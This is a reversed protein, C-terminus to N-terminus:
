GTEEGGEEERPLDLDDDTAKFDGPLPASFPIEEVDGLVLRFPPHDNAYDVLRGAIVRKLTRTVPNLLYALIWQESRGAHEIPEHTDVDFLRMVQAKQTLLSDTSSRVELRGDADLQAKKVRFLREIGGHVHLLECGGNGLPEVSMGRGAVSQIISRILARHLPSEVFGQDFAPNISIARDILHGQAQLGEELGCVLRTIRKIVPAPLPHSEMGFFNLGSTVGAALVVALRGEEPVSFTLALPLPVATV